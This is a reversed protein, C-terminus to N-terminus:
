GGPTGGRVAAGFWMWGEGLEPCLEMGGSGPWPRASTGVIWAPVWWAGVCGTRGTWCRRSRHARLWAGWLEALLMERSDSLAQCRWARPRVLNRELRKGAGIGKRLAATLAAKPDRRSLGRHPRGPRLRGPM